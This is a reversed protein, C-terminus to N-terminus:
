SATTSEEIPPIDFQFTVAHELARPDDLCFEIKKTDQFAYTECVLNAKKGPTLTASSITSDVAINDAYVNIDHYSVTWTSDSINEVTYSAYIKLDGKEPKYTNEYAHIETFTVKFNTNEFAQDIETITLPSSPDKKDGLLLFCVIVSLIVILLIFIYGRIKSANM